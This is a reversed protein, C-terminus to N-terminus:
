KKSEKAVRFGISRLLLGTDILDIDKVAGQIDAKIVPGLALFVSKASINHKSAGRKLQKDIIDVYKKRNRSITGRIFRKETTPPSSRQTGFEHAMGVIGVTSGNAYTRNPFQIGVYLADKGRAFARLSASAKELGMDREHTRVNVKM